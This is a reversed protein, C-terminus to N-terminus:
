WALPVPLPLGNITLLGNGYEAQLRYDDGDPRLMGAAILMELQEAADRDIRRVEEIVAAPVRVEATGTLRGLLDAADLPADPDGGAALALYSTLRVEGEPLEIGFKRLDLVPGAAVLRAIDAEMLRFAEAPDGGFGGQELTQVTESLAALSPEHVNQMAMELTLAVPAAGGAEMRAIRVETTGTLLEGQVEGDSTIRMDQIDVLAGDGAVSIADITVALPGVPLGNATYTQVSDGEVAGVRVRKIGDDRDERAVLEFGGLRGRTHIRRGDASVDADLEAAEWSISGGPLERTGPEMRFEAHMSGDLATTSVLRGPLPVPDGGAGTDLSFTSVARSLGPQLPADEGLPLPGHGIRTDIVIAPEDAFAEGGALERLAETMGPDTVVIRHRSDSSFWRRRYEETVIAIGPQTQAGADLRREIEREAFSGLFWPAALLAVFLGLALFFLFKKM